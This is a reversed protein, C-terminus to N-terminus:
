GHQFHDHLRHIDHDPSLGTPAEVRLSSTGCFRGPSQCGKSLTLISSMFHHTDIVDVHAPMADAVLPHLFFFKISFGVNNNLTPCTPSASAPCHIGFLHDCYSVPSLSVLTTTFIPNITFLLEM